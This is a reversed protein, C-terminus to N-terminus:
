FVNQTRRPNPRLRLLSLFGDLGCVATQVTKRMQPWLHVAQLNEKEIIEVSFGHLYNRFSLECAIRKYYLHTFDGNGIEESATIKLKNPLM